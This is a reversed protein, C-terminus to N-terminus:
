SASQQLSPEAPLLVQHEALPGSSLEDLRFLEHVSIIETVSYKMGEEPRILCHCMSMCVHMCVCVSVCTDM